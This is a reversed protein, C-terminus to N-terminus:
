DDSNEDEAVQLYGAMDELWSSLYTDLETFSPRTDPKTKWCELM